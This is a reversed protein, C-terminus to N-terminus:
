DENISLVEIDLIHDTESLGNIKLHYSVEINGVLNEDVNIHISKTRTEMIFEGYPTGYNSEHSTGPEFTLKSVNNGSRSLHVLDKKIKLMTKTGQMGSLESEDYFVFIV